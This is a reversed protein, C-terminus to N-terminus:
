PAAVIPGHAAIWAKIGGDLHAVHAFGMMQLTHAALASRGGGACYLLLKKGSAFVPNHRSSDPDAVWELTGRPVHIAGPIIGDEALEHPERLDIFVMEPNSLQQIAQAVPVTEIIANAEAVLQKSSKKM